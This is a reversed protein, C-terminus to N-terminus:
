VTKPPHWISANMSKYYFPTYTNYKKVIMFSFLEELTIEQKFDFGTTNVSTCDCNHHKCKEDCNHGVGMTHKKICSDNDKQLVKFTFSKAKQKENPKSCALTTNSYLTFGILFLFLISLRKLMSYCHM